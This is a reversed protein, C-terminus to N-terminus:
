GDRGRLLDTVDPVMRGLAAMACIAKQEAERSSALFHKAARERLDSYSQERMRVCMDALPSERNIFGREDSAEREVERRAEEYGMAWADLCLNTVAATWPDTQYEHRFDENM